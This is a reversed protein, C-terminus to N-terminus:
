FKTASDEGRQRRRAVFLGMGLLALAGPAPVLVFDDVFASQPNVNSNVGDFMSARVRVTETGLPAISILFFQQWTNGPIYAVDIDLEASSLVGGVGNLFELALVTQTPNLPDLGAYATEIRFWASLTYQVGAIGAVDQYLHADVTDPSDALLGGEFSRFWLGRNGGGTHNAFSEFDASDVPAGSMTMSPEELTWGTAFNIDDTPPTEFDGNILLNTGAHASSAAVAFAVVATAMRM